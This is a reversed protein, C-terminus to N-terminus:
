SWIQQNKKVASDFLEANEITNTRHRDLLDNMEGLQGRWKKQADDYADSAAGTWGGRLKAVQEDLSHLVGEIGHVADRLREILDSMGAQTVKIENNM